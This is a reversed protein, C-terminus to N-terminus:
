FRILEQPTGSKTLNTLLKQMEIKDIINDEKTSATKHFDKLDKHPNVEEM